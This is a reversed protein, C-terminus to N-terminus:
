RWCDAETLVITATLKQIGFGTVFGIVKRDGVAERVKDPLKMGEKTVVVEAQPCGAGPVAQTDNEPKRDKPMEDRPKNVLEAIKEFAEEQERGRFVVTRPCGLSGHEKEGEVLFHIHGNVMLSQKKYDVRTVQSVPITQEGKKGQSLTGRLGQRAISIVGNSVEIQGTMGEARLTDSM